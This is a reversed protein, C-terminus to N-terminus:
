VDPGNLIMRGRVEPLAKRDNTNGVVADSRTSVMVIIVNQAFAARPCSASAGSPATAASPLWSLARM